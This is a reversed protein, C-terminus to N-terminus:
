LCWSKYLTSTNNTSPIRVSRHEVPYSIRHRLVLNLEPVGFPRRVEYHLGYPDAFIKM